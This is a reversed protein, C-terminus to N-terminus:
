RKYPMTGKLWSDFRSYENYNTHIWLVESTGGEPKAKAVYPYLGLYEQGNYVSTVADDERIPLIAVLGKSGDFYGLEWPMWKSSSSNDSTVFFLSNCNKMRSKLVVATEKSVKSRDLQKDDIWDVYTRYGMEEIIRKIKLIRDADSFSHSLFIDYAKTYSFEAAEKQLITNATEYLSKKIVVQEIDSKRFLSMM